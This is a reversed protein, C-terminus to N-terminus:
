GAAGAGERAPSPRNGIRREGGPVVLAMTTPELGETEAPEPESVKELGDEISSTKEIEVAVEPEVAAPAKKAQKKWYARWNAATKPLRSWGAKVQAAYKPAEALLRPAHKFHLDSLVGCAARVGGPNVTAGLREAAVLAEAFLIARQDPTSADVTAQTPLYPAREPALELSTTTNNSNM